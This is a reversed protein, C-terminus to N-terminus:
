QKEVVEDAENAKRCTRNGNIQCGRAMGAQEGKGGMLVERASRTGAVAAVGIGGCDGIDRSSPDRAEDAVVTPGKIKTLLTSCPLSTLVGTGSGAGSITSVFILPGVTTITRSGM